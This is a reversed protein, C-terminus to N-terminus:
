RALMEAHASQIPLQDRIAELSQLRGAEIPFTAQAEGISCRRPSDQSDFRVARDRREALSPVHTTQDRM